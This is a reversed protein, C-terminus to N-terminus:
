SLVKKKARSFLSFLVGIIAVLAVITILYPLTSAFNGGAFADGTESQLLRLVGVGIFMSGLFVLVAGMIGWALFKGLSKLPEITEQKAYAVLMTQIEKAGDMPNSNAM